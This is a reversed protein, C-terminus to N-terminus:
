RIRKFQGTEDEVYQRHPFYQIEESVAAVRNGPNPHDSLFQVLSGQRGTKAKLKEFFNALELPNYRADAMIQAGNYDAEAEDTRSCDPTSTSRDAPCHFRTSKRTTSPAFPSRFCKAERDM